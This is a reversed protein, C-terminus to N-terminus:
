TTVEPLIEFTTPEIITYVDGSGTTLQVDYLYKGFPIDSTDEPKIHFVSSGTIVKNLLYESDKVKKKISLALSDDSSIEYEGTESDANTINVELYATDGRTLRIIHDNEVYLM